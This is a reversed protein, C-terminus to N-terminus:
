ARGVVAPFVQVAECRLLMAATVAAEAILSTLVVAPMAARGVLAWSQLLGPGSAGLMAGLAGMIRILGQARGSIFSRQGLVVVSNAPFPAVGIGVGLMGLCPLAAGPQPSALVLSALLAVALSAKLICAAGFLAVLWGCLLRTATIGLFLLTNVADTADASLRLVETSYAFLWFGVAAECVGVFLMSAGCLLVAAWDVEQRGERLEVYEGGDAGSSPLSMAETGADDTTGLRPNKTAPIAVAAVILLVDMVAIAWYSFIARLDLYRFAATLAPAVSAGVGFVANVVNMQSGMSKGYRWSISTMCVTFIANTCFAIVGLQSSLVTLSYGFPMTIEATAKVGLLVLLVCHPDSVSDLVFGVVCGGMM